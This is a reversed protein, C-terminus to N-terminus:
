LAGFEISDSTPVTVLVPLTEIDAEEGYQRFLPTVQLSGQYLILNLDSKAARANRYIRAM